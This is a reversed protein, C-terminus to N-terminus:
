ARAPVLPALLPSFDGLTGTWLQQMARSAAVHLQRRALTTAPFSEPDVCPLVVLDFELGKVRDVTTVLISTERSWAGHLVLETGPIGAIENFLEEAQRPETTLVAVSAGPSTRRLAVLGERLVRGRAAADAFRSYLVPEGDRRPAPVDEGALEGLVALSFAAVQRSSRYNIRLTGRAASKRDLAALLSDWDQGAEVPRMLQTFDGSVSLRTERTMTRRILALELRSFEQAEDLYLHRCRRFRDDTPLGGKAELLLLLPAADERDMTGALEGPTGADITAGDLTRFQELGQPYLGRFQEETSLAFQLATRALLERVTDAALERGSAAVAEELLERSLFLERRDANLDYLAAEEAAFFRDLKSRLTSLEPHQELHRRWATRARTLAEKLTAPPTPGLARHLEPGIQKLAFLRELFEDRRRRALKQLVPLLAPHRKFRAVAWPADHRVSEPLGRTLRRCLAATWAAFTRVRVGRAGLLKLLDEASGAIGEEPVLLLHEDPANDAALAAALRHILVTTKGSGAGGRIVMTPGGGTQLMRYQEKDLYASISAGPLRPWPRWEPVGPLGAADPGSKVPTGAHWTGTEDKRLTTPGSTIAVLEGGSITLLRRERLIGRRVRDGPLAVSYRDGEGCTYFVEALPTKKWDVIILKHDIDMWARHGLLVDHRVGDEELVMRAFYPTGRDPLETKEAAGVQRKLLDFRALLHPYEEKGATPLAAHIERMEAAFGDYLERRSSEFLVRGVLALTAEEEEILRRHAPVLPEPLSPATM